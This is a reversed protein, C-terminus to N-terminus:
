KVLDVVECKDGSCALERHNVSSDDSEYTGLKQWDVDKPMKAVLADYQEQSIAEYPAQKYGHESYPLFAIGSVADFHKYVWAGVEMWEHEQVYVTMSPKHECYYNQYIMWLELQDLAKVEDATVANDPVKIPFSFVYQHEPKYYDNEYPFGCEIMVKALPDKKDCRVRRIFIKSFRSHIGSACNTLQSVTGSPKVCTIAAAQNIGLRAAWEKNVKVACERLKELLEKLEKKGQRGSTLENDMIGTLSVGLLAEEETNKKWEPGLYRFDTLTAQMTGIITAIRIKRLLNQVTDDYRIIVESLNCCQRSRLLIESCPNCGFEYVVKKSVKKGEIEEEELGFLKRRGYKAVQIKAAQRNFVGREGSKSEYLSLWERFFEGMGPKETYCVSNNAMGRWPTVDMWNGDKAHRMRDDSLNSLSIEASRRVGGVVVIEGIKCCIDHCEISNLKRGRAQKFIDITFKFLDVLPQPGSARGGFTKLKAGAPRVESVDWEPIRGQYLMSILERFSSAWGVRSDEVKIVTRSPVMKDAVVPLDNIFQREVSIGAGAGCMLVYLIEDFATPHDIAVYCCNYGAINDVELAKGATMMCRMSPMDELNLIANRVEERVKLYEDMFDPKIRGICQKDFMYAIYRDVTEEWTERRGKEEIWRAYRSLHIFEQYSSPLSKDM